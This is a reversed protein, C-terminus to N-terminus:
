RNRGRLGSVKRRVASCPKRHHGHLYQELWDYRFQLGWVPDAPFSEITNFEHSLVSALLRQLLIMSLQIMSFSFQHRHLALHHACQAIAVVTLCSPYRLHGGNALSPPWCISDLFLRRCFFSAFGVHNSYCRRRGRSPSRPLLSNVIQVAQSM